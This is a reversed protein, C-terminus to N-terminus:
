AKRGISGAAKRNEDTKRSQYKRYFAAQAKRGPNRQYFDFPYGRMGTFVTLPCKGTLRKTPANKIAAQVISIVSPWAHGPLQFESLVARKSRLTQRCVVEVTGNCEPCYSITFHHSSKLEDRVYKMVQNKLHSGQASVWNRKINFTTFWEVLAIGIDGLM